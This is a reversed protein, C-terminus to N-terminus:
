AINRSKVGRFNIYLEEYCTYHALLLIIHLRITSTFTARTQEDQLEYMNWTDAICSYRLQNDNHVKTTSVLFSKGPWM